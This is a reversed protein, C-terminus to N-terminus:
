RDVSFSDNDNPSVALPRPTDSPGLSGVFLRGALGEYVSRRSWILVDAPQDASYGFGFETAVSAVTGVLVADFWGNKLAFTWRAEILGLSGALTLGVVRYLLTLLVAWKVLILARQLSSYVGSSDIEARDMLGVRRAFAVGIVLGLPAGMALWLALGYPLGITTRDPIQIDLVPSPNFQIGQLIWVSSGAALGIAVRLAKDTLTEALWGLWHRAQDPPYQEM